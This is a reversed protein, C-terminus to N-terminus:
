DDDDLFVDRFNYCDIMTMASNYLTIDDSNKVYKEIAHDRILYEYEKEFRSIDFNTLFFKHILESVIYTKSM